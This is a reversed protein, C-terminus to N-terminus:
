EIIVMKRTATFEGAKMQYYLVGSSLNHQDFDITNMGKVGNVEMSKVVKGTVDFISFRVPMNEPLSYSITTINKFPNPSNQFLEFSANSRLVSWSVNMIDRNADYAESSTVSSNISIADTLSGNDLTQFTLTFLTAHDEFQMAQSTNWSLTLVGNQIQTLGLNSDNINIAKPDIGTLALLSNDFEMTFQMGSLNVLDSVKVPVVITQGGEFIVDNTTLVLRDASRSESKQQYSNTAASNNVDGIKVAVFDTKMDANLADINYIEPFAEGQANLADHFSYTKDVFRWSTNQTLEDSTGLILKRLESLDAATIKGDKNADAAIMKYPSSLNEIGLIHRQIYVLDLTSVGNLHNDNKEPIVAYQVNVPLGNFDFAGKSDTMQTLETGELSVKTEEVEENNETAIVGKVSARTGTCAGSNDQIEIFTTVKTQVVDGDDTIAYVWIDVVNNGLDSCDYTWSSTIVPAGNVDLYVETFSYGIEYGCPHSSKRQPDFDSAWITVEGTGPGTKMLSAALGKIQINSPAKKNIINFLQERTSINGCRDAFTYQIRHHGVNHVGSADITNGDGIPSSYDYTGDNNYDIKYWNRLQVTCEDTASATLTITGSECNSDYTDVTIEADLPAIVPANKDVIMITQQHTWTRYGGDKLPQCWDIIKWNRLIKFCAPASPNKSFDYVEDEYNAAVLDCAGESLVPRGTFDPGFEPSAPDGCRVMSTDRPWSLPGSYPDLAQFTIVQTCSATRGGLDTVSFTRTITGRRCSNINVIHTEVIDPIVCNDYAVAEGFDKALDNEDYVFDCDVTVNDPCTISPGLKDQVVAQVMCENYNGAADVARFRVIPNNGIDECCFKIYSSWGCAENIEVIYYYTDGSFDKYIHDLESLGESDEAVWVNAIDAPSLYTGLANNVFNEELSSEFTALYGDMSKPTKFITSPKAKTKSLFYYHGGFAGLSYFNDFEAADCGCPSPNMRRVLFHSLACEDYSGDDFVSASVWGTGDRTIGVTTLEDCTAVPPTKDFVVLKILTDRSNCFDSATYKISYRGAPLTITRPNGFGIFAVPDSLDLNRYVTIDYKLESAPACNDTLTPAPLTLRGECSHDSTTATLLSDLGSVRPAERDVIELLQVHIRAPINRCSWEMVTWTRMIKTACMTSNKFPIPASDSFSATLSCFSGDNAYLSEGNITPVGTGPIGNVAVPSPHGNSLKPWDGNCALPDQQGAAIDYNPPFVVANIDDYVITITVTCPSSINGYNDTARYTREIVKFVNSPLSGDCNNVRISRDVVSLTVPTCNDTATPEYNVFESCTVTIDPVCDIVPAMKDEIVLQTWCSNNGVIKAHYGTGIHSCDVVNGSPIAQGTATNIVMVTVPAPCGGAHTLIMEPTITATGDSGLTVQIQGECSCQGQATLGANILLSFIMVTLLRILKSHHTFNTKM